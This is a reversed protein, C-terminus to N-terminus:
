KWADSRQTPIELRALPRIHNEKQPLLEGIPSVKEIESFIEASQILRYGYNGYLGWVDNCNNTM